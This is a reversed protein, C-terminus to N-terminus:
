SGLVLRGVVGILTIFLVFLVMAWRASKGLATNDACDYCVPGDQDNEMVDFASLPKNEGCQECRM